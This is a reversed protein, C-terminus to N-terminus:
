ALHARLFMWNGNYLEVIYYGSYTTTGTTNQVVLTVSVQVTGDPLQTAGTIALTDQVTNAFGNAFQAETQPYNLWLNYASQYDHNNIDTYYSQVTAQAQQVATPGSTATATPTATATATAAATPTASATTATPTTQVTGSGGFLWAPKVLFLIIAIATVLLALLFIFFGGKRRGHSNQPPVEAGGGARDPYVPTSPPYNVSGPAPFRTDQMQQTSNDVGAPPMNASYGPYSPNNPYGPNGPYSAGRPLPTGPVQDFAYPNSHGSNSVYPPQSPSTSSYGSSYPYPTQPPEQPYQPYQPYQPLRPDSAVTPDESHPNTVPTQPPYQPLRPDSVVTPGELPLNELLLNPQTATGCRPCTTSGPALQLGCQGCFLM